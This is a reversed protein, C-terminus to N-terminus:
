GRIDRGPKTEYARLAAMFAEGSEFGRCAHQKKRGLMQELMSFPPKEGAQKEKSHWWLWKHLDDSIRAVLMLEPSCNLGALRRMCRSEPPLGAALTAALSLPLARLGLVHYYQAFDCILADEGDAVM